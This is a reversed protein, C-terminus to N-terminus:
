DCFIHTIKLTKFMQQATNLYTDFKDTKAEYKFYYSEPSKNMIMMVSKRVGDKSSSSIEYAPTGDSLNIKKIGTMNDGEDNRLNKVYDLYLDLPMNKYPMDKLQGIVVYAEPSLIQDTDNFSIISSPTYQSYWGENSGKNENFLWDDPYDLKMDSSCSTYDNTQGFVFAFQICLVTPLVTLFILKIIIKREDRV